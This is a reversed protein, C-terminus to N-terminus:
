QKNINNMIRELMFSRWAIGLLRNETVNGAKDKGPKAWDTNLSSMESRDLFEISHDANRKFAQAYNKEEGSMKKAAVMFVEIRNPDEHPMVAPQSSSSTSAWAEMLMIFADANPMKKAYDRGVSEFIKQKVNGDYPLDGNVIGMEKNKSDIVYVTPSLMERNIITSKAFDILLDFDKDINGTPVKIVKKKTKKTTTKVM